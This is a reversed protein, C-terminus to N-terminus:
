ARKCVTYGVGMVVWRMVNKVMEAYVGNICASKMERNKLNIEDM